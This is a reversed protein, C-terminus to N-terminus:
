YTWGGKEMTKCIFFLLLCDDFIFDNRKQNRMQYEAASLSRKQFYPDLQVYCVRRKCSGVGVLSADDELPWHFFFNVQFLFTSVDSDVAVLLYSGPYQEM